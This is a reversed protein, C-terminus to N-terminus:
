GPGHILCITVPNHLNTSTIERYGWKAMVQQKDGDEPPETWHRIEDMHMGPQLYYPVVNTPSRHKLTFAWCNYTLFNFDILM